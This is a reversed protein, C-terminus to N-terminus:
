AASKMTVYNRDSDGQADQLTKERDAKPGEFASKGASLGTFHLLSHLVRLMNM